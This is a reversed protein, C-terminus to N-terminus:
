ILLLYRHFLGSLTASEESDRAVISAERNSNTTRNRTERQAIANFSRTIDSSISLLSFLICGVSRALSIFYDFEVITDRRPYGDM